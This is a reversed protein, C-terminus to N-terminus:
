INQTVIFRSDSVKTVNVESGVVTIVKCVKKDTVSVKTCTM